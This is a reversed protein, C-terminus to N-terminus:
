TQTGCILSFMYIPGEAEQVQSVESFIINELEEM